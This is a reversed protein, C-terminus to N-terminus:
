WLREEAADLKWGPMHPTKTTYPCRIEPRLFLPRLPRATLPPIGNWVAPGSNSDWNWKWQLRATHRAPQHFLDTADYRGYAPRDGVGSGHSLPMLFFNTYIRSGSPIPPRM